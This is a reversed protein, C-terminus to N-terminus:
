YGVAMVHIFFKDRSQQWKTGSPRTIHYTFTDHKGTVVLNTRIVTGKVNGDFTAVVVPFTSFNNHFKWTGYVTDTGWGHKISSSKVTFAEMKFPQGSADLHLPYAWNGQIWIRKSQAENYLRNAQTIANNIKSVDVILNNPV